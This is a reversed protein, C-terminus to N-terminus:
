AELGDRVEGRGCKNGKECPQSLEREFASLEYCWIRPCKSSSNREFEELPNETIITNTDLWEIGLKVQRHM